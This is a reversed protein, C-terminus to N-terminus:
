RHRSYWKNVQVRTLPSLATNSEELMDKNLVYYLRSPTEFPISSANAGHLIKTALRAAQRGMEFPSAGYSALVGWRVLLESHAFVQMDIEEARPLIIDLMSNDVPGASATLMVDVDGPKLGAMVTRITEPRSAKRIDISIGLKEAMETARRAAIGSPEVDPCYLMLVRRADPILERLLALRKGTLEANLSDIGTVQWEPKSRNEVLGRELLGSVYLVLVPVDSSAAVQKLADAEMGGAAVILDPALTVLEGALPLLRDRERQANRTVYRIGVTPEYGLAQMGEQFGEVQPQRSDGFLLIGVVPRSGTEPQACAGLMGLFVAGFFIQSAKLGLQGTRFM